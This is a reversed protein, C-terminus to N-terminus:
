PFCPGIAAPSVYTRKSELWQRHMRSFVSRDVRPQFVGSFKGFLIDLEAPTFRAMIRAISAETQWALYSFSEWIQLNVFRTCLDREREDVYRQLAAKLYSLFEECMREGAEDLEDTRESGSSLRDAM